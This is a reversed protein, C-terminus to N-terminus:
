GAEPKSEHYGFLYDFSGLYIATGEPDIYVWMQIDGVLCPSWVQYSGPYDAGPEPVLIAPGVINTGADRMIQQHEEIESQISEDHWGGSTRALSVNM